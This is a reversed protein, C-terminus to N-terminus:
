EKALNKGRTQSRYNPPPKGAVGRFLTSLSNLKMSDAQLQTFQWHFNNYHSKADTSAAHGLLRPCDAHRPNPFPSTSTKKNSDGSARLRACVGLGQERGVNGLRKQERIRNM